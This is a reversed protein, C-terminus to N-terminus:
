YHQKRIGCPIPLAKAFAALCAHAQGAKHAILWNRLRKYGVWSNSFVQYISQQDKVLVIDLTEKSVDIGLVSHM